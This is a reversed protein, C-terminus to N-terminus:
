TFHFEDSVPSPPPPTSSSGFWSPSFAQDEIYLDNLVRQDLGEKRASSLHAGAHAWIYKHLSWYYIYIQLRWQLNLAKWIINMKFHVIHQTCLLCVSDILKSSWYPLLYVTGSSLLLINLPIITTGLSARSGDLCLLEFDAPNGTFLHRIIVIYVLFETPLFFDSEKHLM